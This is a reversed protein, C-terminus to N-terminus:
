GDALFEVNEMLWLNQTEERALLEVYDGLCILFILFKVNTWIEVNRKM